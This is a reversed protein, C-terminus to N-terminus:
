LRFEIDWFTNPVMSIQELCPYNSGSLNLWLALSPAFPSSYTTYKWYEMFYNNDIITHQTNEYDVRHHTELSYVFVLYM